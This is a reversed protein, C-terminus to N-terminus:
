RAIPDAADARDILMAMAPTIAVAYAEGVRALAQVSEPLVLGAAVLDDITRLTRGTPIIPATM